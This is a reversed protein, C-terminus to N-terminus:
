PVTLLTPGHDEHNCLLHFLFKKARMPPSCSEALPMNAFVREIKLSIGSGVLSVLPKFGSIEKDSQGISLNLSQINHLKHDAHIHPKDLRPLCQDYWFSLLADESWKRFAGDSSVSHIKIRKSASSLNIM